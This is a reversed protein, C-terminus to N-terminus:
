AVIRASIHPLNHTFPNPADGAVGKRASSCQARPAVDCPAAIHLSCRNCSPNLGDSGDSCYNARKAKRPALCVSLRTIAKSVCGLFSRACPINNNRDTDIRHMCNRCRAPQNMLVLGASYKSCLRIMKLICLSGQRSHESPVMRRAHCDWQQLQLPQNCVRLAGQTLSMSFLHGHGFCRQLRRLRSRIVSSGRQLLETYCAILKSPACILLSLLQENNSM